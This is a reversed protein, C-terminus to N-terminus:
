EPCGTDLDLEDAPMWATVGNGKNYVHGSESTAFLDCWGGIDKYYPVGILMLSGNGRLHCVLRDDPEIDASRWRAVYATTQNDSDPM